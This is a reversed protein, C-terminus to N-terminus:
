TSSLFDRWFGVTAQPRWDEPTHADFDDFEHNVYDVLDTGYCIIDTGWISLVPHGYSGAGAPLFRHAYVPVLKPVRALLAQAKALADDPDAPRLGWASHWYGHQVALVIGEIPWDLQQRIAEPEGYRWNPWPSDWTAGEEPPESVPLGAALFARHDDAFEFGYEREIRQFEADSLGPEIECRDAAVLLRAAEIGLKMGNM